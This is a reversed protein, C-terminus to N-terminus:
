AGFGAADEFDTFDRDLVQFDGIAVARIGAFVSELSEREIRIERFVLPDVEIVTSRVFQQVAKGAEGDLVLLEVEILHQLLEEEMKWSGAAAAMFEALILGREDARRAVIGLAEFVMDRNAEM